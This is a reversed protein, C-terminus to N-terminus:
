VTAVSKLFLATSILLCSVTLSRLQTLYEKPIDITYMVYGSLIAVIGSMLGLLYSITRPIMLAIVSGNLYGTIVGILLITTPSQSCIWTMYSNFENMFQPLTLRTRVIPELAVELPNSVSDSM